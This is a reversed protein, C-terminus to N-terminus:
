AECFMINRTRTIQIQLEKSLVLGLKISKQKDLSEPAIGMGILPTINEQLQVTEEAFDEGEVTLM